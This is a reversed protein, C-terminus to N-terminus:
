TLSEDFIDAKNQLFVGTVISIACGYSTHNTM